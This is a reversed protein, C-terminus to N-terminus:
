QELGELTQVTKNLLDNFEKEDKENSIGFPVNKRLIERIDELYFMAKYLDYIM